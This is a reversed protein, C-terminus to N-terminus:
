FKPGAKARRRDPARLGEPAHMNQRLEHNLRQFDSAPFGGSLKVVYWCHTAMENMCGLVSRSATKALRM